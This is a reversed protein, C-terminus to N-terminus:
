APPTVRGLYQGDAPEPRSGRLIGWRSDIVMSHAGVCASREFWWVLTEENGGEISGDSVRKGEERAGVPQMGVRELDEIQFAFRPMWDSRRLQAERKQGYGLEDPGTRRHSDAVALAFVVDIDFKREVAISVVTDLVPTGGEPQCFVPGAVCPYVSRPGEVTVESPQRTQERSVEVRDAGGIPALAM